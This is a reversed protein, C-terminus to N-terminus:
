HEGHRMVFVPLCERSKVMAQNISMRRKAAGYVGIGVCVSPSLICRVSCVFGDLSYMDVLFNMVGSYLDLDHRPKAELM